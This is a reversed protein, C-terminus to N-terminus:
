NHAGEMTYRKVKKGNVVSMEITLKSDLISPVELNVDQRKKIKKLQKKARCTKVKRVLLLLTEYLIRIANISINLITIGIMFFGLQYQADVSSVFQTFALVHYTALTVCLENFRHIRTGTKTEMEEVGFVFLSAFLNQYLTFVVIIGSEVNFVGVMLVILSLRRLIFVFTSLRQLNTNAKSRSFLAGCRNKCSPKKVSRSSMVSVAFTAAPIIILCLPAIVMSLYYSM